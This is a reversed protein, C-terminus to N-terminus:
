DTRKPAGSGAKQKTSKVPKSAVQVSAPKETEAQKRPSDMKKANATEKPTPNKRSAAHNASSTNKDATDAKKVVSTQKVLQSTRTDKSNGSKTQKGVPCTDEAVVARRELKAPRVTGIPCTKSTASANKRNAVLKSRKFNLPNGQQDGASGPSAVRIDRTHKPVERKALIEEISGTDRKDSALKQFGAELLRDTEITRIWPSRAGLVVAILRVDGRKATAALNFGSACVFGTKIGDVGPCTGLLRNANHHTSNCYTYSTLSHIHLAEPYHRIYSLSLKALDRATTVQGRAPLGNPTMFASNVMGLEKAKINMKVIFSEVSGSLHEAAAVAADNGSVVAIGKILEELTVDRGARLGMRSGGTNAARKSVSVRDSPHARGHKIADFILYLTLIKTVSAPAITFDANQEYLVHGDAADILIASRTDLYSAATVETGSLLLFAVPLLWPVVTRLFGPM